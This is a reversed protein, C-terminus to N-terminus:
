SPVRHVAVVYTGPPEFPQGEWTAYRGIEVLGASTAFTDYQSVTLGGRTLQFGAILYGGPTVHDVLRAVVAGETGPEVFIMVNGAMVVVDFRRRIGEHDRLDLLALDAV